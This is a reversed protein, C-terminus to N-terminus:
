FKWCCFVAYKCLFYICFLLMSGIICFAVFQHPMLWPIELCGTFNPLMKWISCKSCWTFANIFALFLPSMVELFCASTSHLSFFTFNFVLLIILLATSFLIFAILRKPNHTQKNIKIGRRIEKRSHTNILWSITLSSCLRNKWLLASVLENTPTRGILLALDTLVWTSFLRCINGKSIANILTLFLSYLVQFLSSSSLVVQWIDHILEKCLFFIISALVIQSENSQSESYYSYNM